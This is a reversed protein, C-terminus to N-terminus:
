RSDWDELKIGTIRLTRRIHAIPKYVKVEVRAHPIDAGEVPYHGVDSQNRFPLNASFRSMGDPIMMPYVPAYNPQCNIVPPNTVSTVPNMLTTMTCLPITGPQLCRVNIASESGNMNSRCNGISAFAREGNSAAMDGDESPRMETVSYSVELDVPVERFRKYLDSSLYLPSYTQSGQQGQPLPQFDGGAGLNIIRGDPTKMHFEVRDTKLLADAPLGDIALPIYVRADDAAGGYQGQLLDKPVGSRSIMPGLSPDFRISMAKGTADDQVLQQQLAYAVNWPLLRAGFCLLVGFALIIRSLRTQRRLYQLGLLIAVVAVGILFRIGDTMWDLGTLTTPSIELIKRGESLGIFLMEGGSIALFFIVSGAIAQTLNETLAGFAVFPLTVIFALFITRTLSTTLSLRIPAGSAVGQIFDALFVPGQAFLIVFGIKALLLDVRSVPRTLWDQSVGPIADQQVCMVILVARGLFTIFLILQLLMGFPNKSTVTHDIHFLMSTLAAQSAAVLLIVKWLLRLDKKMIHLIV